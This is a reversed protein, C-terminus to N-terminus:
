QYLHHLVPKIGDSVNPVPPLPWTRAESTHYVFSSFVCNCNLAIFWVFRTNHHVCLCCDLVIPIRHTHTHALCAPHTLGSSIDPM